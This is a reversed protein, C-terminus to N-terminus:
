RRIEDQWSATGGSVSAEWRAKSRLQSGTEIDRMAARAFPLTAMVSVAATLAAVGSGILGTWEGALFNENTGAAIGSLILPTAVLIRITRNQGLRPTSISDEHMRVLKEIREDPTVTTDRLKRWTQEVDKWDLWALRQPDHSLKIMRSLPIEDTDRHRTLAVASDASSVEVEKGTCGLSRSIVEHSAYDAKERALKTWATQDPALADYIEFLQLWGSRTDLDPLAIQSNGSDRAAQERLWSYLDESGPADDVMKTLLSTVTARYTGAAVPKTRKPKGQAKQLAKSLLFLGHFREAVTAGALGEVQKIVTPKHGGSRVCEALEARLGYNKDIEPWGSLVFNGQRALASAFANVVTFRHKADLLRPSDHFTVRVVNQRVLQLFATTNDNDPRLLDLVYASDIAQAQTLVPRTNGVLLGLMMTGSASVGHQAIADEAHRASSFKMSDLTSYYDSRRFTATPM